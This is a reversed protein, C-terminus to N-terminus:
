DKKLLVMHPYPIGIEYKDFLVKIAARMDREAQFRYEEVVKGAFKINISSDAFETPGIYNPGDIFKPLFEKLEVTHEKLIEHVKVFDDYEVGVEVVALSLSSSLNVVTKIESNNIIKMHGSVDQLQTTRLGLSKVQGRFGDIVIYDGVKYSKEFVIFLGSIMDSILSQASLGVVLGLIGVSAFLTLSDVGFALLVLIILIIAVIYDVFSNILKAATEGLSSLSLIKSTFTRLLKSGMVVILIYILTKLFNPFNTDFWQAIIDLGSSDAIFIPSLFSNAGFLDHGFVSILVILSSLIWLSIQIIKKNKELQNM